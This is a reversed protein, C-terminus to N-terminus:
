VLVAERGDTQGLKMEYGPYQGLRTTNEYGQGASGVESVSAPVAQTANRPFQRMDRRLYQDAQIFHRYISNWTVPGVVGDVALGAANQYARVARATNPGFIGDIQLPSLANDFEALIALMYQLVEVETGSRGERLVGPFQFQVGFFTQGQSVLESLRTVGM